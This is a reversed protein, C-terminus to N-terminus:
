EDENFRTDDGWVQRVFRALRIQYRTGDPRRISIYRKNTPGHMFDPVIYISNARVGSKSKRLCYVDGYDTVAYDSYDPHLKAGEKEFVYEMTLVDRDPYALKELNVRRRVGDSCVVQGFVGNDTRRVRLRKGDRYLRSDSDITYKPAITPIPTHM